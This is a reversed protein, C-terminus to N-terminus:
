NKTSVQGDSGIHQIHEFNKPESIELKNVSKKEDIKNIMKDVRDRIDGFIKTIKKSGKLDSESHKINNNEKIAEMTTTLKNNNPNSKKITKRNNKGQAKM